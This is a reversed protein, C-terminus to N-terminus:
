ITRKNNKIKNIRGRIPKCVNITSEKLEKATKEVVPTGKEKAYNVLDECKSKLVAAKEKAINLAKEKDLDKLEAKIEAIKNEVNAKVEEVKIEKAKAILDDIKEKVDKRFEAGEKQALMLGAFAGFCAGAIFAVKKSM